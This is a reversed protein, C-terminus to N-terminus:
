HADAAEMPSNSERFPALLQTAQDVSMFPTQVEVQELGNKWIARGPIPPLEAARGNSLISQSCGLNPMQFAVLGTLNAKIQGDVAKVDPKQTAVILHMGVARGLAAIRAATRRAEQVDNAKLSGGALFLEAAEDVVIVHRFYAKDIEAGVGESKWEEKPLAMLQAIDKCNNLRLLKQRIELQASLADLREKAFPVSDVVDVRKLNEFQQFELGGKLDILTFRFDPNRIYLTTILQRLFTSKGGGTQGGILLHPTQEFSAQVQRSRTTGIFFDSKGKFASFDFKFNNPMEYHSYLIDVTGKSRNEKIDDIYVHLASELTKRAAKFSDLSLYANTVRLKRTTEDLPKDFVYNPLKGLPSKLGASQFVESLRSLVHNRFLTQRLGWFYFGGTAGAIVYVCHLWRNSPYLWGVRVLNMLSHDLGTLLLLDFIFGFSICVLTPCTGNVLGYFVEISPQSIAFYLTKGLTWWDIETLTKSYGNEKKM